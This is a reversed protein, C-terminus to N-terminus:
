PEEMIEFKIERYEQSFVHLNMINITTQLYAGDQNILQSTPIISM